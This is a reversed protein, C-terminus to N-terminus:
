FGVGLFGGWGAEPVARFEWQRGRWELRLCIAHLAQHPLIL